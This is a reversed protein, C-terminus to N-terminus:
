LDIQQVVANYKCLVYDHCLVPWHVQAVTDTKTANANEECSFTEVCKKM